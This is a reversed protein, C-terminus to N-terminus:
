SSFCVLKHANQESGQYENDLSSLFGSVGVVEGTEERHDLLVGRHLAM